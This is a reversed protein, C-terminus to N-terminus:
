AWVKHGAVIANGIVVSMALTDDPTAEDGYVTAVADALQAREDDHLPLYGRASGSPDTFVAVSGTRGFAEATYGQWETHVFVAGLATLEVDTLAVPDHAEREFRADIAVSAVHEVNGASDRVFADGVGTTPLWGDPHFGCWESVAQANTGDYVVAEVFTPRVTWMQVTLPHPDAAPTTEGMPGVTGGVSVNHNVM